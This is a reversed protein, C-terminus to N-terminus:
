IGGAQQLAFSPILLPFFLFLDGVKSQSPYLTHIFSTTWVKSNRIFSVIIGAFDKRCDPPFHIIKNHLSLIKM